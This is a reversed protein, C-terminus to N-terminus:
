GERDALGVLESRRREGRSDSVHPGQMEAKGKGGGAEAGYVGRSQGARAGGAAELREWVAVLARLRRRIGRESVDGQM